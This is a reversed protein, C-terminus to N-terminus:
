LYPVYKKIRAVAGGEFYRAESLRRLRKRAKKVNLHSKGGCATKVKGRGTLKYFRKAASRNTKLKPM